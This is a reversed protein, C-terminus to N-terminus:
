EEIALSEWKDKPQLEKKERLARTEKPVRLDRPARTERSVRFVTQARKEPPETRVEHAKFM